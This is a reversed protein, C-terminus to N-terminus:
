REFVKQECFSKATADSEGKKEFTVIVQNQKVLNGESISLTKIFASFPASIENEMKMSEIVVIPQNKEVFQGVTAKIKVVLGALPSKLFLEQNDISRQAPAFLIEQTQSKIPALNQSRPMQPITITTTQGANQLYVTYDSLNKVINAKFIKGDLTFTVKTQSSRLVQLTKIEMTAGEM